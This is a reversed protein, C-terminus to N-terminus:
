QMGWLQEYVGAAAEKTKLETLATRLAAVTEKVNVISLIEAETTKKTVKTEKGKITGKAYITPLMTIGSHAGYLTFNLVPTLKMTGNDLSLSLDMVCRLLADVGAEDAIPLGDVLPKFGSIMLAPESLIKDTQYGRAFTSATGENYESLITTAKAAKTQMIREIDTVQAGLLSGLFAKVETYLETNVKDLVADSPTFWAYDDTKIGTLRGESHEEASSVGRTGFAAIGIKKAQSFPRGASTVPKTFDYVLNDNSGKYEGKVAIGQSFDPKSGINIFRGDLAGSIYPISQYDGSVNTAKNLSTRAVMLYANKFNYGNGNAGGFNINAFASAPIVIKDAPKFNGIEYFTNMGIKSATISLQILAGDAPGANKLELVVDKTMDISVNDGTQGNISVIRTQYKEPHITFTTTEGNKAKLEIVHPKDSHETNFTYLGMDQFIAPQGDVTVSGGELKNMKVGYKKAIHITIADGGDKWGKGFLDQELVSVSKPYLNSRIAIYPSMEQLNDTTGFLMGTAGGMMKGSVKAIKGVAKQFMGQSSANQICTLAFLAILTISYRVRRLLPLLRM